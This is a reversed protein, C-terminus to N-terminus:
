KKDNKLNEKVYEFKIKKSKENTGLLMILLHKQNSNLIYKQAPRGYKNNKKVKEVNGFELFLNINRKILNDIVRFEIENLM